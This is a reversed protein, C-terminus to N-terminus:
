SSSPSAEPALVQATPLPLEGELGEILASTPPVAQQLRLGGRLDRDAELYGRVSWAVGVLLVLVLPTLYRLQM